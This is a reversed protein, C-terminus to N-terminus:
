EIKYPIDADSYVYWVNGVGLRKKEFGLGKLDIGFQTMSVPDLGALTCHDIYANYFQSALLKKPKEKWNGASVMSRYGLDRLYVHVTRGNEILTEREEVASDSTPTLKYGDRVFKKYGEVMWNRIGSYERALEASLNPNRDAARVTTRFKIFLLRRMVAEDINRFAPKQNMNFILYPIDYATDVDKYLRKVIQPEGSCLAKFADSSAGITDAQIETCYNFTKGVIQGVFRARADTNGGILSKLGVSSVNEKGYVGLVTDFIVSKGNSGPGILWLTSEVKRGMTKRDVVGLGLFKQLLDQQASTLVSDLFFHWTPCTAKPNYDYPLLSVVDMKDSFPHYVPNGIDTFDWVGNRFGVLSKNLRLSNLKAGKYAERFLMSEVRTWDRQITKRNVADMSKEAVALRLAQTLVADGLREWCKGGFYYVGGDYYKLVRKCVDNVAVTYGYTRDGFDANLCALRLKRKDLCKSLECAIKEALEDDKM